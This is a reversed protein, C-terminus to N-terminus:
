CRCPGHGCILCVTPEPEPAASDTPSTYPKSTLHLVTYTQARDNPSTLAVDAKVVVGDSILQELVVDKWISKPQATGLFVHLMSPSLAPYITLGFIIKERLLKVQTEFAETITPGPDAMPDASSPPQPPILSASEMPM